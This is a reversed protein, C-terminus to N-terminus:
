VGYEEGSEFSVTIQGTTTKSVEPACVSAIDRFEPVRYVSRMSEAVASIAGAADKVSKFDFKEFVKEVEQQTPEGDKGKGKETVIHRRFQDPDAIAGDIVSGLRESLKGLGEIRKAGRLSSELLDGCKEAYTKKSKGAM